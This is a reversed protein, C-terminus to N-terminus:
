AARKRYRMVYCEDTLSFIQHSETRSLMSIALSVYLWFAIIM